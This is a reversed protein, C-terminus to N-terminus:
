GLLRFSASAGEQGSPEIRFARIPLGAVSKAELFDEWQRVWGDLWGSQRYLRYVRRYRGRLKDAAPHDPGQPPSPRSVSPALATLRELAERRLRSLLPQKAQEVLSREVFQRILRQLPVALTFVTIADAVDLAELVPDADYSGFARIPPRLLNYHLVLGSPGSGAGDADRAFIKRGSTQAWAEAGTPVVAQIEPPLEDAALQSLFTSKGSGYPGAVLLLHGLRGGGADASAKAARWTDLRERYERDLPRARQLAFSPLRPQTRPADPGKV